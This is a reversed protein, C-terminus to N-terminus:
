GESFVNAETVAQQLMDKVLTLLMAPLQIGGLGHTGACRWPEWECSRIHFAILPDNGQGSGNWVWPMGEWWSVSRWPEETVTALCMRELWTEWPPGSTIQFANYLMCKLNSGKFQFFQRAPNKSTSFSFYKIKYVFYVSKTSFKRFTKNYQWRSSIRGEHSVM